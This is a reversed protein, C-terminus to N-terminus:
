DENMVENSSLRCLDYDLALQKKKAFNEDYNKHFLSSYLIDLLMMTSASSSFSGINSHIKERTTMHLTADAKASLYTEGVSTIVICSAESKTVNDFYTRTKSTTGTYSIVIFCDDKDANYSQYYQLNQNDSITVKKGIRMLRDAFVKAIDIGSGICLVYIHKAKNLLSTAHILQTYDILSLTDKSTEEYLHAISSSVRSLSDEKYFPTNADIHQFHTNIYILEALYADKFDNYGRYGLKVCLRTVASTATYALSALERVSIDKIDSGLELLKEAVSKEAYSLTEFDKLQEKILM